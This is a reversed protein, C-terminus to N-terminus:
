CPLPIGTFMDNGNCEAAAGPPIEPGDWLESRELTFYSGSDPTMGTHVQHAVNGMGTKVYQWTHCVNMDWTYQGGPGYPSYMPTGPCWQHPQSPIALATGSGLILGAVTLGASTMTAALVRKAHM